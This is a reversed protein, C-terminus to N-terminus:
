LEPDMGGGGLFSCAGGLSSHLIAPRRYLDVFVENLLCRPFRAKYFVKGMFFILCMGAPELHNRERPPLSQKKQQRNLDGEKEWWNLRPEKLECLSQFRHQSFPQLFSSPKSWRVRLSCCTLTETCVPVMTHICVM